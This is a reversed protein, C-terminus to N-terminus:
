AISRATYLTKIVVKEIVVLQRVLLKLVFFDPIVRRKYIRPVFCQILVLLVVTERGFALLDIKRALFGYAICQVVNFHYLVHLRRLIM